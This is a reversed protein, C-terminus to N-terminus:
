CDGTGGATITVNQYPDRRTGSTGDITISGGPILIVECERGEAAIAALVAMIAGDDVPLRGLVEMLATENTRYNNPWGLDFGDANVFPVTASLGGAGYRLEVSPLPLLDNTTDRGGEWASGHFGFVFGIQQLEWRVDDVSPWAEDQANAPVVLAMALSAAVAVTRILM